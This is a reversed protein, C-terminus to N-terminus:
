SALWANKRLRQLGATVLTAIFRAKLGHLVAAESALAGSILGAEVAPSFGRGELLEYMASILTVMCEVFVLRHM